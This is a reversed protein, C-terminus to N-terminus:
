AATIQLRKVSAGAYRVLVGVYGWVGLRVTEPGDPEDYRFRMTDSEFLLTDSARAVLISEPYQTIGDSALVGLGLIRGDVAVSGTGFVNMPGNSELPILPRGSSDTLGLFDGYRAVSAVMIDAPEKRAVRVAVAAKLLDKLVPVNGSAQTIATTWAAETAYAATATGASAVMAAVVRAEVSSNYAAMLDGYILADIAPSSSDLLQRSVKQGGVVASPTMTDIGTNFADNWTTAANEASQTAVSAGGVQKPLSMPRPDKGLGIRRVADAVRRGQRALDAYESSLWKPPVIGTGASSVSLARSHETLRQASENDGERARVLDAFFSRTGGESESRYHGPDRDRTTTSSSRTQDKEDPTVALAMEDVKRNRVEIDTLDAIQDAIAKAKAGQETVSRLEDETLDRNAEAARNQLGEIGSKLGEYQERLNKLYPNM